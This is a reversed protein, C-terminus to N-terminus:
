IHSYDIEALNFLADVFKRERAYSYKSGNLVSLHKFIEQGNQISNKYEENCLIRSAFSDPDDTVLTHYSNNTLDDDKSYKNLLHNWNLFGLVCSVVSKNNEKAFVGATVIVGEGATLNKFSNSTALEYLNVGNELSNVLGELFNEDSMWLDLSAENNGIKSSYSIQYDGQAFSPITLKKLDYGRKNATEEFYEFITNKM